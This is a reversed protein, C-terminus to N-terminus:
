QCPLSMPHSISPPTAKGVELLPLIKDLNHARNLVVNYAASRLFLNLAKRAAGFNRAGKPFEKALKGTQTNLWENFATRSKPISSLNLKKFFERSTQVLGSGGQNRLASAGVSTEAVYSQMQQVFKAKM